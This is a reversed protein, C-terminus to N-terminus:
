IGKQKQKKLQSKNVKDKPKKMYEFAMATSLDSSFASSLSASVDSLVMTVVRIEETLSTPHKILIVDGNSLESSFKTGNVGHVTTGSTLIRGSGKQRVPM